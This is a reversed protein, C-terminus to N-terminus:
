TRVRVFSSQDLRATTRIAWHVVAPVNVGACVREACRKGMRSSSRARLTTLIGTDQPPSRPVTSVELAETTYRNGKTERCRGTPKHFPFCAGSRLFDRFQSKMITMILDSSFMDKPCDAENFTGRRHLQQMRGIPPLRPPPMAHTQEHLVTLGYDM